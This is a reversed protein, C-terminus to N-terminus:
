GYGGPVLAQVEAMLRRQIMTSALYVAGGLAAAVVIPVAVHLIVNPIPLFAPVDDGLIVAVAMATPTAIPLLRLWRLIPPQAPEPRPVMRQGMVAVSRVHRLNPTHTIVVPVQNGPVKAIKAPEVLFQEDQARTRVMLMGLGVSTSVNSAGLLNGQVVKSDAKADKRALRFGPLVFSVVFAIPMIWCLAAVVRVPIAYPLLVLILAMVLICGAVLGAALYGLRLVREPAYGQLLGGTQVYRERQRKQANPTAPAAPVVPPKPKVQRVRQRQQRVQVRRKGM